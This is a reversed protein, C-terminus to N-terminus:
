TPKGCTLLIWGQTGRESVKALSAMQMEAPCIPVSM